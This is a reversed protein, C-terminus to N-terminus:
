WTARVWLAAGGLAVLGLVAATIVLTKQAPRDRSSDNVESENCDSGNEIEIDDTTLIGFKGFTDSSSGVIKEIDEKSRRHTNIYIAPPPSAKAKKRDAKKRNAKRKFYRYM